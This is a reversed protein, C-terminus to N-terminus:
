RVPIRGAAAAGYARLLERREAEPSHVRRLWERAAAGLCARTEPAALLDRLRARLAAEDHTVSGDEAVHAPYTIGRTGDEGVYALNGPVASAVVARGHAMAELVANSGGEGDSTNLVVDAAALYAGVESPAVAPHLIRAWAAAGGAERACEEAHEPELVEGLVVLRVPVERALRRVVRVALAVNKVRRVHAVVLVVAEDGTRLSVAAPLKAPVAIGKPLVFCPPAPSVLRAVMRAEEPNGCTVAAARRVTDLVIPLRDAVHIDRVLDTGTLGAVLPVGLRTALVVGRPGSRRAHFAHVLAPTRGDGAVRALVADADDGPRAVLVDVGAEELRVALRSLTRENGTRAGEPNAAVFVVLPRASM